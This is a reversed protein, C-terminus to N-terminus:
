GAAARSGPLRVRAKATDRPRVGAQGWRKREDHEEVYKRYARRSGDLMALLARVDVVGNDRYLGIAAGYGSWQYGEPQECINAKVPNRAIYRATELQRFAGDVIKSQFRAEFVHGRRGYKKNFYQAYRVNFRKFGSSLTAKRLRVLVHYHTTMVVFELVVWKSIEVEERLLQVAVDRDDADRFVHLSNVGNMWVHYTLGPEDIRYARAM